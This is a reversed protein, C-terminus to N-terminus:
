QRGVADGYVAYQEVARKSVLPTTVILNQIHYILTVRVDPLRGCNRHVYNQIIGRAIGTSSVCRGRRRSHARGDIGIRRHYTTHTETGGRPYYSNAVRQRHGNLGRLCAQRCRRNCNVGNIHSGRKIIISVISVPHVIHNM